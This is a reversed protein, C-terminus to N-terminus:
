QDYERVREVGAQQYTMGFIAENRGVPSPLGLKSNIIGDIVASLAGGCGTAVPAGFEDSVFEAGAIQLIFGEGVTSIKGLIGRIPRNPPSPSTGGDTMSLVIPHADSGIYCNSGLFPSELRVKIPLSIGVGVEQLMHALDLKIASAPGALETTASVRTLDHTFVQECSTRQTYGGIEGCRVLGALGGPVNEPAKSLTEGDTAGVFALAGTEENEIFGGRLTLPMKLPVTEKGLVIEGSDVKANVCASLEIVSLPCDYFVNFEDTPIAFAAEAEVGVLVTVAVLVGFMVGALKVALIAFRPKGLWFLLRLVRVGSHRVKM